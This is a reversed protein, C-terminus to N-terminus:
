EARRSVFGIQDAFIFARQPGIQVNGADYLKGFFVARVRDVGAIAKQALVAIKGPGALLRPDLKDAGAGLNQVHHAVLQGGLGKGDLAPNGCGGTGLIGNRITLGSLLQRHLEAERHDQLGGRAAAPAAHAPAVGHFLHADIIIQHLGLRFLGKAVVINKHLFEEDLGLVDLHLNQAVFVAIHDMEILPVTGELAPILLHHLEGRSEGYGLLYPLFQVLVRHLDGLMHAIGIGSRQFKQYVVLPMVIENLHVGANLHLM